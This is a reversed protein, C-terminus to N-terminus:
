NLSRLGTSTLVYADQDNADGTVLDIVAEDEAPLAQALDARARRLGSNVATRTMGLLDAAAAAPLDLVDRLILV